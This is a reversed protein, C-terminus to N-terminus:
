NFLEDFTIGLYAEILMPDVYCLHCFRRAAQAASEHWHYFKVNSPLRSLYNVFEGFDVINGSIHKHAYLAGGFVPIANDYKDALSMIANYVSEDYGTNDPQYMSKKM